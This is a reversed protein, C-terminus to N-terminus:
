NREANKNEQRKKIILCAAEALIMVDNILSQIQDDSFKESKKGMLARAKSVDM